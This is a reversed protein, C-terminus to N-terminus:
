ASTAEVTVTLREPSGLAHVAHKKVYLSGVYVGAPGEDEAYMWTGKTEKAKTFTLTLSNTTEPM